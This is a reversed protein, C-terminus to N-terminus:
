NTTKELPPIQVPPSEGKLLNRAKNSAESSDVGERELRECEVHYRRQLRQNVYWIHLLTLRDRIWYPVSMERTARRFALDVGVSRRDRIAESPYLTWSLRM